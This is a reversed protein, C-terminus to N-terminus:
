AAKRSKVVVAHGNCTGCVEDASVPANINMPPQGTIGRGKCTGCWALDDPHAAAKKQENM